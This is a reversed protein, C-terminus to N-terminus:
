QQGLAGYQFPQIAVHEGSWLLWLTAALLIVMPVAWWLWRDRLLALVDRVPQWAAM